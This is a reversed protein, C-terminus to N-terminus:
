VQEKTKGFIYYCYKNLIISLTVCFLTVWITEFLAEIRYDFFRIRTIKEFLRFFSLAYGAWLYMLLTHQGILVVWKPYSSVCRAIITVAILGINIAFFCLPYNYYSVLHPDISQDPFLWRSITCLLVYSLASLIAAGRSIPLKNEYIRYLHGIYLFVQVTLMINMTGYALLHYRFLMSGTIFCSIVIFSQVLITRGYHLIAYFLLEGLILCPMFWYSNGSFMGQLTHVFSDFGYVPICFLAPITVLAVYPVVLKRFWGYLFRKFDGGKTSFLYGSIAFFLPIKIPSTFIFFENWVQVQHGYVVLVMALARLIDVWDKRKTEAM